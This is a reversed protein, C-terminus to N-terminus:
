KEKDRKYNLWGIVILIFSINMEYVSYQLFHGCILYKIDLDNVKANMKTNIILENCKKWDGNRM